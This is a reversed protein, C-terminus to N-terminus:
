KAPGFISKTDCRYIDFINDNTHLWLVSRARNLIGSLYNHGGGDGCSLKQATGTEFRKVRFNLPKRTSDAPTTGRLVTDIRRASRKGCFNLIKPCIRCANRTIARYIALEIRKISCESVENSPQGLM